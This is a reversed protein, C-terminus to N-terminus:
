ANIASAYMVFYDQYPNLSPFVSRSCSLSASYEMRIKVRYLDGSYSGLVTSVSLNNNLDYTTIYSPATGFFFESEQTSQTTITAITGLTAYSANTAYISITKTLSWTFTTPTTYREASPVTFQYAQGSSRNQFTNYWINEGLVWEDTALPTDEEESSSYFKLEQWGTKYGIGQSDIGSSSEAYYFTILEAASNSFIVPRLQTIM